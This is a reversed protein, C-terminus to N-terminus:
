PGADLMDNHTLRNFWLMSILLSKQNLTSTLFAKAYSGNVKHLSLHKVILQLSTGWFTIAVKNIPRTQSKSQFVSGHIEQSTITPREPKALILVHQAVISPTLHLLVLADYM